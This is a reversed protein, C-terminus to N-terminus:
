GRTFVSEVPLTRDVRALMEDLAGSLLYEHDYPHISIRLPRRRTCLWENLRNIVTLLMKRLSTAAEFGVLPLWRSEGSRLDVLRSTTELYRWPLRALEARSVPGLAWAPPVYYDPSALHHEAFWAHNRAMLEIIEGSDLALHEAATRSILLSHLRHYWGRVHRVEHTWGHGALRIGAGQWQRLQEIQGPQWDLGPVVLLILHERCRPPLREIMTAVRSLTSPMVDHISVIAQM